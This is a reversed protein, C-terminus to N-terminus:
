ESKGHIFWRKLIDAVQERLKDTGTYQQALEDLRAEADAIRKELSNSVQRCEKEITPISVPGRLCMGADLAVHRCHVESTHTARLAVLQMPAAIHVGPLNTPLAFLIQEGDPFWSAYHYEQIDGRPLLRPEGPGTPLLVLQPPPPGEQLALAWKGDPSLALSKGQGLRVPDNSGDTKRLYVYPERVAQGWEYFLLNKGDASLDASTSWDFWSLDREKESGATFSIMRSRPEQRAVLVRGDRSIDLIMLDGPAQFILRERGALTVHLPTTM